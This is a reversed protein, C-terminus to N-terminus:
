QYIVAFTENDDEDSQETIISKNDLYRVWGNAKKEGTKKGNTDFMILNTKWTFKGNKDRDAKKLVIQDKLFYINSYFPKYDLKIMKKALFLMRPDNRSKFRSILSSRARQFDKEKLKIRPINLSITKTKKGTKDFIDIINHDTSTIAINEEQTLNVLVSPKFLINPGGWGKKHTLEGDVIVNFIEREPKLEKNIYIVSVKSQTKFLKGEPKWGTRKKLVIILSGDKRFMIKYISDMDELPLQLKLLGKYKGNKNYISVKGKGPSSYEPFYLDKNFPNSFMWLVRSFEGPGNGKRGFSKEFTGDSRFKFTKFTRNSYLFLENDSNIVVSSINVADPIQSTNIKITKQNEAQINSTIFVFIIFLLILNLNTKM